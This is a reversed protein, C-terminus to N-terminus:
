ILNHRYMYIYLVKDHPLTMDSDLQGPSLSMNSNLKDQSLTKNDLQDTSLAM